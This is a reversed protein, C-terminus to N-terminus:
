RHGTRAPVRGAGVAGDTVALKALARDLQRAISQSEATGLEPLARVVLGCGPPLQEIRDALQARLRRSVRHRVVSGGVAKGVILGVKAPILGDAPVSGDQAKGFSTRVLEPLLYVVMGGSRARRGGRTVSTFDRSSRMRHAAPLV